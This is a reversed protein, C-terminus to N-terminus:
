PKAAGIVGVALRAGANGTPQTTLDDPDAHVVIGRGVICQEGNLQITKDVRKLTANGQADAELNGLDGSHRKDAEPAAHPNGAPNFHGGASTGDPASIDGFEHIHFGHKSSPKLGSLQAEILVGDAQKTFTVKGQVTSNKTPTLVCVAKSIQTATPAPAAAAPAAAPAHDKHEQAVAGRALGLAVALAASAAIRSFKSHTKM